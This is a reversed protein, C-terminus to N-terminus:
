ILFTLLMSLTKCTCTEQLFNVIYPVKIYPYRSRNIKVTLNLSKVFVSIPAVKVTM